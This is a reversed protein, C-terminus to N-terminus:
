LLFSQRQGGHGVHLIQDAGGVWQLYHSRRLIMSSGINIQSGLFPCTSHGASDNVTISSQSHPSQCLHCSQQLNSARASLDLPFCLTPPISIHISCFCYLALRFSFSLLSSGRRLPFGVELCRETKTIM